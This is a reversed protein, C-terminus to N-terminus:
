ALAEKGAEIIARIKAEQEPTPPVHEFRPAPRQEIAVHVEPLEEGLELAECALQYAEETLKDHERDSANRLRYSDVFRSALLTFPSVQKSLLAHRYAAMSPLGLAERRFEPISPPWTAAISQNKYHRVAAGVQALELSALGDRWVRASVSDTDTGYQSVWKHGYIGAMVAFFEAFKQDTMIPM